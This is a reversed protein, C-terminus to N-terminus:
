CRFRSSQFHSCCPFILHDRSKLSRPHHSFPHFSFLFDQKAPLTPQCQSSPFLTLRFSTLACDTTVSSAPFVGNSGTIQRGDAAAVRASSVIHHHHPGRGTILQQASGPIRRWHAREATTPVEWRALRVKFATGLTSGVAAIVACHVSTGVPLGHGDYRGQELQQGTAGARQCQKHTSGESRHPLATAAKSQSLVALGVLPLRSTAAQQTENWNWRPLGLCPWCRGTLDHLLLRSGCPPKDEPV